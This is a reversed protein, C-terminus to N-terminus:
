EAVAHFDMELTMKDDVWSVLPPRPVNIGHDELLITASGTGTLETDSTFVATVTFTVDAQTDLLQLPGALELMFEEGVAVRDPAGDLRVPVFVIEPYLDTYLVFNRIARNRRDSDTVFTTADIVVPTFESTGVQDPSTRLAGTVASTVGVVTTPVGALTEEIVFRVESRESVIAFNRLEAPAAEGRDSRREASALDEEPTEAMEGTEAVPTALPVAAPMQCAVLGLGLMMVAWLGYLNQARFIGKVRSLMTKERQTHSHDTTGIPSRPEKSHSFPLGIPMCFMGLEM